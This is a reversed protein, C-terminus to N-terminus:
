RVPKEREALKLMPHSGTDGSSLVRWSTGAPVRGAVHKLIEPGTLNLNRALFQVPEAAAKMALGVSPGNRM